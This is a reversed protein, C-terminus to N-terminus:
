QVEQVPNSRPTCEEGCHRANVQFVEFKQPHPRAEQHFLFIVFSVQNDFWKHRVKLARSDIYEVLTLLRIIDAPL